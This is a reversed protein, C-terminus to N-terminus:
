RALDILASLKDAYQSESLEAKLESAKTQRLFYYEGGDIIGGNKAATLFDSWGQIDFINQDIFANLLIDVQTAQRVQATQAQATLLAAATTTANVQAAAIAATTNASATASKEEAKALIKMLGLTADFKESAQTQTLMGNVYFMCISNLLDRSAVVLETRGDLKVVTETFSSDLNGKISNSASANNSSENARSSSREGVTRSGSSKILSDGSVSQSGKGSAKLIAAIQTATDPMPSFCSLFEGTVYGTNSTPRTHSFHTETRTNSFQVLSKVQGGGVKMSRKSAQPPNLLTTCGTMLVAISVYILHRYIPM